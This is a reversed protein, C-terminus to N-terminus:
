ILSKLFYKNKNHTKRNNWLRLAVNQENDQHPVKSKKTKNCYKHRESQYIFKSRSRVYEVLLKLTTLMAFELTHYNWNLRTLNILM